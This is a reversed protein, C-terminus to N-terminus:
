VRWEAGLRSHHSMLIIISCNSHRRTFTQDPTEELFTGETPLFFGESYVMIVGTMIPSSKHKTKMIEFKTILPWNQQISQDETVPPHLRHIMDVPFTKINVFIFQLSVWAVACPRYNWNRCNGKATLRTLRGISFEELKNAPNALVGWKIKPAFLCM